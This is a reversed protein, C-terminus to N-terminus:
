ATLEGDRIRILRGAAKAATEDHTVMVITQREARNIEHILQHIQEGTRRDLNGTPEDLLLVRPQNILARCLAVRQREGGSLQNPRHRLREKLGVRALLGEARARMERRRHAWEITRFRVYAPMMVNEVATFDPLLHFFQFVFGFLTNRLRAQQLGSLRTLSKGEFVVDGSTPSDLLGLLHLLTSKGAGSSGVIVLFEGERVQMSVGRLVRLKEDGQVYEKVLDRAALFDSM